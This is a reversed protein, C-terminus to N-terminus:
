NLTENLLCVFCDFMARATVDGKNNDEGEGGGWARPV